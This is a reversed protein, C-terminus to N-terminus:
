VRVYYENIGGKQFSVFRIDKRFLLLSIDFHHGSFM